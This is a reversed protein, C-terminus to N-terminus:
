PSNEARRAVMGRARWNSGYLAINASVGFRGDYADFGLALTTDQMPEKNRQWLYAPKGIIYQGVAEIKQTDAEGLLAETVSGFNSDNIYGNPCVIVAGIVRETPYSADHTVKDYGRASYTVRTSTMVGHKIDSAFMKRVKEVLRCQKADLHDKNEYLSRAAAFYLPGSPLEKILNVSDDLTHTVVKELLAKRVDVDHPVGLYSVNHLVYADEREEIFVLADINKQEM